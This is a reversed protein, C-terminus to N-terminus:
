KAILKIVWIYPIIEESIDTDGDLCWFIVCLGGEDYSQTDRMDLQLNGYLASYRM